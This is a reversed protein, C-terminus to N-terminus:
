EITTGASAFQGTDVSGSPLNLKWDLVAPGATLGASLPLRMAFRVSSHAAIRSIAGCNLQYTHVTSPRGKIGEQYSPCADLPIASSTPNTLTVAYSVTDGAAVSPPVRSMTTRLRSVPSAPSGGTTTSSRATFDVLSGGCQVAMHAGPVHLTGTPFVLTFATSTALPKGCDYPSTVQVQVRDGPDLVVAPAALGGVDFGIRVRPRTVASVRSPPPLGCSRRGSNEVVFYGSVADNWVGGWRQQLHPLRLESIKCTPFTASQALQAAQAPEDTWPVLGGPDPSDQHGGCGTLVVLCALVVAYWIRAPPRRAVVSGSILQV